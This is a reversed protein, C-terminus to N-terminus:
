MMNKYDTFPNKGAEATPADSPMTEPEKVEEKADTEMDKDEIMKSIPMLLMDKIDSAVITEGSKVKQFLGLIKNSVSDM